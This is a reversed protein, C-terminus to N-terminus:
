NLFLIEEESILIANGERMNYKNCNIYAQTHQYVTTYMHTFQHLSTVCLTCVIDYIIYIAIM